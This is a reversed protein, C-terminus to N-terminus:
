RCQETSTSPKVLKNAHSLYMTESTLQPVRLRSSSVKRDGMGLGMEPRSLKKQDLLQIAKSTMEALSPENSPRQNENCRQPGSPPNAAPQGTWEVSMNGNNFLGLLRIASLFAILKAGCANCADYWSANFPDPSRQSKRTNHFSHSLPASITWFNTTPLFLKSM